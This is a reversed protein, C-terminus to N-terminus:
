GSALMQWVQAHRVRGFADRRVKGRMVWHRLTRESMGVMEAVRPVTDWLPLASVRGLYRLDDAGWVDGCRACRVEIAALDGSSWAVTEQWRLPGGCRDSLGAPDPQPCRGLPREPWDRLHARLAAACDALIAAHEDVAPHRTLWDLSLHVVRIADFADAVPTSLHREQICMRALGALERDVAVVDDPGHEGDDDYERLTRRDTMAVVTLDVPPRSGPKGPAKGGGTKSAPRPDLMRRAKGIDDLHRRMRDTCTDCAIPAAIGTACIACLAETTADDTVM